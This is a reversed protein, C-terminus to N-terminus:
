AHSGSGTRLIFLMLSIHTKCAFLLSHQKIELLDKPKFGLQLCLHCVCKELVSPKKNRMLYKLSGYRFRQALCELM